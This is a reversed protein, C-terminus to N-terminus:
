KLTKIQVRGHTLKNLKDLFEAQLGAPLDIITVWAGNSQWEEKKITGY